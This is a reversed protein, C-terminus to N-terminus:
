RCSPRGYPLIVPTIPSRYRMSSSTASQAPQVCAGLWAVRVVVPGALGALVVGALVIEVLAAGVLVFGSELGARGDAGGLVPLAV